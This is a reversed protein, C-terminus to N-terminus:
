CANAQLLQGLQELDKTMHKVAQRLVQQQLLRPTGRPPTGQLTVIVETKDDIAKLAYHTSNDLFQGHFGFAYPPDFITVQKEDTINVWMFGGTERFRFGECVPPLDVLEVKVVSKIWRPNNQVNTLAGFVIDIPANIQVSSSIEQM